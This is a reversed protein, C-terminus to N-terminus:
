PLVSKTPVCYIRCFIWMNCINVNETLFVPLIHTFFLLDYGFYLSILVLSNQFISTEKLYNFMCYLSIDKFLMRLTRAAFGAAM